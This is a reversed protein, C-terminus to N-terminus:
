GAGAPPAPMDLPIVRDGPGAECSAPLPAWGPHVVIQHETHCVEVRRAGPLRAQVFAEISSPLSVRYTARDLWEAPHDDNHLWPILAALWLWPRSALTVTGPEYGANRLWAQAAARPADSDDALGWAGALMEAVWQNCNQYRLSFPYANASYTAGLLGLTRRKDLAAQALSAAEAPPLFVMSVHGRAPDYTGLAFGTVGQDFIRPRGEDCAFYLQRVAWPLEPSDRLSIGAHTYHIGFRDLDLGTRAVLAVPEGSRDLEDKIAAAFRLLKDQQAVSLTPPADCFRSSDGSGGSQAHGKAAALTCLVALAARRLRTM